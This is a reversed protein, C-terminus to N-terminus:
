LLDNQGIDKANLSIYTHVPKYWVIGHAYTKLLKTHTHTHTPTHTYIPLEVDNGDTTNDKLNQIETLPLCIKREHFLPGSSKVDGAM